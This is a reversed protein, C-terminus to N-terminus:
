TLYVTLTEGGISSPGTVAQLQANAALEWFCARSESISSWAGDAMDVAVQHDIGKFGVDGPEGAELLHGFVFKSHLPDLV